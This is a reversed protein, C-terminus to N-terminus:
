VKALSKVYSAERPMVKIMTLALIKQIKHEYKFTRREVHKTRTQEILLSYM